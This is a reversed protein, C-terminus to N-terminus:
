SRPKWAWYIKRLAKGEPGTGERHDGERVYWGGDPDSAATGRRASPGRSWLPM